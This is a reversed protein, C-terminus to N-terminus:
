ARSRPRDVPAPADLPVLRLDVLYGGRLVAACPDDEATTGFTPGPADLELRSGDEFGLTVFYTTGGHKGGSVLTRKAVVVAPVVQVPAARFRRLKRGATMAGWVFVGFVLLPIAVFLFPFASWEGRGLRSVGFSMGGAVTMFVTLVTLAIAVGVCGMWQAVRLQGGVHGETPPHAEVARFVPHERIRAFVNETTTAVPATTVAAGCFECRTAEAAIAANCGECRGGGAM